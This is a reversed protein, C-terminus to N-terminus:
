KQTDVGQDLRLILVPIELLLLVLEGGEDGLELHICIGFLYDSPCLNNNFIDNYIILFKWIKPVEPWLFYVELYKSRWM